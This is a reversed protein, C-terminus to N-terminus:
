MPLSCSCKRWPPGLTLSAIEDFRSSTVRTHQCFHGGQLTRSVAVLVFKVHPREGFGDACASAGDHARVVLDVVAVSALVRVELVVDELVFKTELTEDDTVPGRLM